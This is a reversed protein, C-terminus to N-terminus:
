LGMESVIAFIAKNMTPFFSVVFILRITQMVSVKLADGGLDDALLAMEQIGGPTSALLCTPLSLKTLKHIIFGTAFVFVLIGVIMILIPVFLAGLSMVSERTMRMGIFAGSCTQMIVRLRPPFYTKRTAITYCAAGIMGGILMGATVGLSNFVLGLAGSSLVLFVLRPVEIVPKKKEAAPKESAPKEKEAKESDKKMVHMFAPPCFTYIILLRFVQLIAVYGTNAGLEESILAMDSVGGPVTAFLSTAIDLDSLLYIATGFIINLIIMSVILIVVPWILTRLEKIDARGLKGGIMAGSFAQIILKFDAYYFGKETVLNFIIVAIMSGVLAGSPIKLKRAITCGLAGVLLTVLFWLFDSM